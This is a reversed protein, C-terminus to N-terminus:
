LGCLFVKTNTPVTRLINLFLVFFYGFQLLISVKSLYINEGHEKLIDTNYAFGM